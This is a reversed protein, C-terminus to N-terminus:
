KVVEVIEFMRRKNFAGDFIAGDGKGCALPDLFVDTFVVTEQGRVGVPAFGAREVVIIQLLEAEVALVLVVGM